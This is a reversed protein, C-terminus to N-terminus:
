KQRLYEVSQDTRFMDPFGGGHSRDDHNNLTLWPAECRYFDSFETSTYERWGIGWLEHPPRVAASLYTPTINWVQILALKVHKPNSAAYKDHNKHTEQPAEGGFSTQPQM